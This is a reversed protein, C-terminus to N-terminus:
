NREHELRWCNRCVIYDGVSNVSTATPNYIRHENWEIEIPSLYIEDPDVIANCRHCTFIDETESM